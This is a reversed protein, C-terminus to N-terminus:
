REARSRAEWGGGAEGTIARRQVNRCTKAQIHVHQRLFAPSEDQLPQLAVPANDRGLEALCEVDRDVGNATVQPLERVAAQDQSDVATREWRDGTRSGVLNAALLRGGGFLR